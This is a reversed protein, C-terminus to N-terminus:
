VWKRERRIRDLYRQAERVRSDRAAHYREIVDEDFAIAYGKAHAEDIRAITADGLPEYAILKMM